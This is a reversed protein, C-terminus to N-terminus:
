VDEGSLIGFRIDRLLGRLLSNPNADYRPWRYDSAHESETSAGQAYGLWPVTAKLDASAAVVKGAITESVVSGLPNM